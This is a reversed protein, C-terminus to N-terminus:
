RKKKTGKRRLLNSDIVIEPPDGGGVKRLLSRCNKGQIDYIYDQIISPAVARLPPDPVADHGFVVQVFPISYNEFVGGPLHVMYLGNTRFQLEDTVKMKLKQPLADCKTNITVIKKAM